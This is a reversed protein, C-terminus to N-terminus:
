KRVNYTIENGDLTIVMKLPNKSEVVANPVTCGFIYHGVYMPDIVFNDAENIAWRFNQIDSDNGFYSDKYTENNYNVQYVWGAYEYIDDFIIKVGCSSLFDKSKTTTNTIDM